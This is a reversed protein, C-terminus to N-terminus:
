SFQTPVMCKESCFIQPLNESETGIERAESKGRLLGYVCTCMDVSICESM